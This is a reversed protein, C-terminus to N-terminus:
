DEDEDSDVINKVDIFEGDENDPRQTPLKPKPIVPLKSFKPWKQLPKPHTKEWEKLMQKAKKAAAHDEEWKQVAEKLREKWKENKANCEKMQVKWEAIREAQDGQALWRAEKEWVADELVKEHAATEEMLEPMTLVKGLGDRTLKQSPKQKRCDEKANLQQRVRGPYVQQMVLVAQQQMVTGKLYDVEVQKMLLLQNVEEKTYTKKMSKSSNSTHKIPSLKVIPISPPLVSSKIPSFSFLSKASTTLTPLHLKSPFPHRRQHQHSVIQKLM